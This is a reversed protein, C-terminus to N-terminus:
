IKKQTKTSVTKQKQKKAKHIIKVHEYRLLTIQTKIKVFVSHIQTNTKTNKNSRYRELTACM